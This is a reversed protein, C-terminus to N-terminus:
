LTYRLLKSIKKRQSRLRKKDPCDSSPDAGIKFTIKYKSTGSRKPPTESTTLFKEWNSGRLSADINRGIEEPIDARAVLDKIAKGRTQRHKKRPARSRGLTRGSERTKGFNKSPSSRLQLHSVPSNSEQNINNDYQYSSPKLPGSGKEGFPKRTYGCKRM